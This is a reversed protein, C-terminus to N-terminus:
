WWGSAAVGPLSFFFGDLGDHQYNAQYRETQGSLFAAAYFAFIGTEQGAPYFTLFTEAPCKPLRLMRQAAPNLHEYAFDQIPGGPAAYIPRFLILGTLSVDLLTQMLDSGSASDMSQLALSTAM